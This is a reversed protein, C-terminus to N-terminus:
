HLLFHLQQPCGWRANAPSIAGTSDERRFLKIPETVHVIYDDTTTTKPNGRLDDVVVFQDNSEVGIGPTEICLIRGGNRSAFDRRYGLRAGLEDLLCRADFPAVDDVLGANEVRRPHARLNRRTRVIRQRQLRFHCDSRRRFCQSRSAAGGSVDVHHDAGGRVHLARIRRHSDLNLARETGAAVGVVHINGARRGGERKLLRDIRDLGAGRASRQHDVRFDARGVQGPLITVAMEYEAVYTGRQNDFTRIRGVRSLRPFHKTAPQRGAERVVDAVVGTKEPAALVAIRAVTVLQETLFPALHELFHARHRGFM